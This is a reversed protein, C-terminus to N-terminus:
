SSSRSRRSCAAPSSRWRAPWARRAPGDRGRPPAPASRRRTARAQDGPDPRLGHLPQLPQADAGEGLQAAAIPGRELRAEPSRVPAQSCRRARNSSALGTASTARSWTATSRSWRRRRRRRARRSPPRAPALEGLLEAPPQALAVQGPAADPDLDPEVVPGVDAARLVSSCGVLSGARTPRPRGRAAARTSGAAAPAGARRGPRRRRRRRRPVGSGSSWSRSPSSLAVPEGAPRRPRPLRLRQKTAATLDYDRGAVYPGRDIVRVTVSRGHYRLTVKTGCPLTKHAVGMTGPSLSGGCALAGGYLGPGYYSAVARRFVTIRRASAHPQAQRPRQPRRLGAAPLHRDPAAELAPPLRRSPQDRRPRRRRAARPDRGEGPPPRRPPGPRPPPRREGALLNHECVHFSTRSRVRIRGRRPPVASGRCPASPATSGPGPMPGTAAPACRHAGQSAAELSDLRGQPVRHRGLGPTQAADPRAPRPAPRLRPHAALDLAPGDAFLRHRRISQSQPQPPRPPWCSSAPRPVGTGAVTEDCRQIVRKRLSGAPNASPSPTGARRRDM